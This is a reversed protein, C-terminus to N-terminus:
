FRVSFTPSRIYDFHLLGIHATRSDNDDERRQFLHENCFYQHMFYRVSAM